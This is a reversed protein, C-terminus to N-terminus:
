SDDHGQEGTAEEYQRCFVLLVTGLLSIEDLPPTFADDRQHFPSM